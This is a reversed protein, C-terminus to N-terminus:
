QLEGASHGAARDLRLVSYAPVPVVRSPPIPLARRVASSMNQLLAAEGAPQFRATLKWGGESASSPLLSSLNLSTNAPGLHLLVAGDLVDVPGSRRVFAWGTLVATGPSKPSLPLNPSFTLARM